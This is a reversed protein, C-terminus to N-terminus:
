LYILSVYFPQMKLIILKSLDKDKIRRAYNYACLGSQIIKLFNVLILLIIQFLDQFNGQLFSAKDVLTLDAGNKLLCYVVEPYGEIVAFHLCTKLQNLNQHNVDIGADCLRFILKIKSKETLLSKVLRHLLTEGDQFIFSDYVISM